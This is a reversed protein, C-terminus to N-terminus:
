WQNPFSKQTTTFFEMMRHLPTDLKHKDFISQQGPYFRLLNQEYPMLYAEHCVFFNEGLRFPMVDRSSWSNSFLRAQVVTDFAVTHGIILRQPDPDREEVDIHNVADGFYSSVVKGNVVETMQSRPKAFQGAMRGMTVVPGKCSKQLLHHMEAFLSLRQSTYSLEGHRFTEACDGVQLVFGKHSVVHKMKNRLFQVEDHPVIPLSNQLVQEAQYLSTECPYGPKQALTHRRWSFGCCGLNAPTVPYTKITEAREPTPLDVNQAITNDSM